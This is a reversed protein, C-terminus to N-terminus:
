RANLLAKSKSRGLLQSMTRRTWRLLEPQEDKEPLAALKAEAERVAILAAAEDGLRLHLLTREVFLGADSYGYLRESEDLWVLARKLEGTELHAMRQATSHVVMLEGDQWGSRAIRDCTGSAERYYGRYLQIRATMGLATSVAGDYAQDSVRNYEDVAPLNKLRKSITPHDDALSAEAGEGHILGWDGLRSLVRAFALTDRGAVALYRQAVRDAAREQDRSWKAGVLELVGESLATAVVFTGIAVAATNYRVSPDSSRSALVGVAAGAVAGLFASLAVRNQASYFNSLNHDLMVHGVEHALVAALEDEDHLLSLLGVSVGVTGDSLAFANPVSSLLVRIRLAGPHGAPLPDPDVSLLVRQVYDELEPAQLLVGTTALKSVYEVDDSQLKTRDAYNWESYDKTATTIGATTQTRAGREQWVGKWFAGLDGAALSRAPLLLLIMVLARRLAASM